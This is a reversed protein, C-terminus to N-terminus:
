GPIAPGSEARLRSRCPSRAPVSTPRPSLLAAALLLWMVHHGGIFSELLNACLCYLGIVLWWVSYDREAVIRAALVWGGIALAAGLLVLAIPGGGLLTELYGNHAEYITAAQVPNSALPARFDPNWWAASFGWGLVPRDSVGVFVTHWINGRFTFDGGRGAARSIRSGVLVFGLGTAAVTAALAAALARATLRTRAIAVLAGIALAGFAAFLSTMSRSEVLLWLAASLLLMVPLQTALAVVTGRRRLAHTLARFLVPVGALLAVAAIPALSNRNGYIGVTEGNADTAISWDALVAVASLFVGGACGAFVAVLQQHPALTSRLWLAVVVVGLTGLGNSFTVSPGTSWVTSLTFWGGLAAVALAGPHQTALARLSGLRLGVLLYVIWFSTVIATPVAFQDWTPAAEAWLTFVPGRTLVFVAFCALILELDIRRMSTPLRTPEQHTM